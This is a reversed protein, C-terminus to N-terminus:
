KPLVTIIILSQSPIKPDADIVIIGNESDNQILLSFGGSDLQDSGVIMWGKGTFFDSVMQRAESPKGQVILKASWGTSTGGPLTGSSSDVLTFTSPFKLEDPWDGPYQLQGDPFDVNALSPPLILKSPLYYNNYIFFGCSPIVIIAILILIALVVKKPM